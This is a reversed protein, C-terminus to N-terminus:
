RLAKIRDAEQEWAQPSSLSALHRSYVELARRVVLTTSPQKGATTQITDKARRLASENTENFRISHPYLRRDTRTRFNSRPATDNPANM